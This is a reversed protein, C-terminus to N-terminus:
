SRSPSSRIREGAVQENVDTADIKAPLAMLAKGQRITAAVQREFSREQLTAIDIDEKTGDLDRALAHYLDAVAQHTLPYKMIRAMTRITAAALVKWRAPRIGPPKAPIKSMVLKWGAPDRHVVAGIMPDLLVNRDMVLLKALAGLDGHRARYMLRTPYEQFMLLCPIHVRAYFLIGMFQPTAVIGDMAPDVASLEGDIGLFFDLMQQGCAEMSPHRVDDVDNPVASLAAGLRQFSELIRGIAPDKNKFSSMDASMRRHNRYYALWRALDRRLPLAAGYDAVNGARVMRAADRGIAAVVLALAAVMRPHQSCWEKSNPLGSLSM